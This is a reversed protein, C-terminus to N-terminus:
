FPPCLLFYGNGKEMVDYQDFPHGMSILMAKLRQAPAYLKRKKSTQHLLEEEQKRKLQNITTDSSHLRQQFEQLKQQEFADEIM